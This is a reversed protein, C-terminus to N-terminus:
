RLAEAVARADRDWDCLADFRARTARCMQAHRESDASIARILDAAEGLEHCSLDICTVGDEWLAAARQGAYFQGRGILPRGVAAWAHIVHGFGDGTPKDHWGWGARTMTEAIAQVPQLNGDPCDHGFSYFTFDPLLQQAALFVPWVEAIRPALNVFSTITRSTVPERYRFTTDSDLEEGVILGRGVIPAEAAVLALPDLGWEVQQRANGVHYLYAAGTETAFRHYGPQNQQVSPMVADWGMGRARALTVHWLPREPHGPDFTLYLGPEIERYKADAALYQRALAGPDNPVDFAWYGETYWDLGIPAFAQWGLRDEFLRQLGYYLDAHHRDLLVRRM